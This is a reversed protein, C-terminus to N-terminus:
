TLKKCEEICAACAEACAKCEAHHDEHKRCAKECDSCIDIFVKAFEHLREADLAALRVMAPCLSLMASVTRLCDKLSTDGKELMVICHNVCVEGRNICDLAADILAQHPAAGHAHGEHKEHGEHGDHHEHGEHNKDDEYALAKGAAALAVGTGAVLGAALMSRRTVTGAGRDRLPKISGVMAIGKKKM